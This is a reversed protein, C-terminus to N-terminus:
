SLPARVTPAASRQEGRDPHGDPIQGRRLLRRERRAALRDGVPSGAGFIIAAALCALPVAPLVYRYDFEATAAPIVLMALALSWPLLAEGGFRRWAVAMGGLGLLLLAGVITGRLYFYRQYLRMWGAYPGAVHTFGAKPDRLNQAVAGFAHGTAPKHAPGWSASSFKYEGYTIPDPFVTRKWAFSRWTDDWIVRAYAVPQAKIARMAFDKAIRNTVPSFEPPPFRHLPADMGWIYYQTIMRNKPLVGTCLATEDPTPTFKGCDAFEMVRAYLFIGTSQTMAYQHYWAHFWLVYGSVPLACAAVGAIVVRLGTRRLLLYVAFIALLPLGISRILAAFGVLLGAAVMQTMSPKPRWMVITVAAMILFLFLTDAMLLHELQIQFADYLVPAAALAALWPRVKFRHLLLAYIMVGIAPGMLHQSATVFAYSHLPQLARLYLSYGSPRTPDPKVDGVSFLVYQYSDNFWLAWRFGLMTILRLALAPVLVVVFLRHRSLLGAASRRVASFRAIAAARPARGGTDTADEAPVSAAQDQPAAAAAAPAPDAAPAPAAEPSVEVGM